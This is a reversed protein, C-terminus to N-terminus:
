SDSRVSGAPLHDAVLTTIVESLSMGQEACHRALRRSLELPLYITTRHLTRGDSRGIITRRRPVLEIASDAPPPVVPAAPTPAISVVGNAVYRDAVEAPKRLVIVPEPRKM